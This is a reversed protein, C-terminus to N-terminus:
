RLASRDPGLAAPEATARESLVKTMFRQGEGIREIEVAMADVAQDVRNLRDLIEQPLGAVAATGRRWLRRSFALSLPIFVAAMVFWTIFFGQDPGRREFRPPEVVAGPVLAASAVRANAAAIEKDLALLRDDIGSLQRELGLRDVGEARQNRLQESVQRRQSVLERRQDNLERRAVVTGQWVATPNADLTLAAPPPAPTRQAAQIAQELQEIQTALGTQPAVRTQM